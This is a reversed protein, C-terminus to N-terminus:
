QTGMLRLVGVVVGEITVDESRCFIATMTSNAPELRIRRRKPERYFRKLTAEDGIRAVVLDGDVCTGQKKVIVHDGDAIHEEIMSEGRVRLAFHGDRSLGELDLREDQQEIAEIPSGAAVTGALALGEPRILQLGRHGFGRTLYGTKVLNNVHFLATHPSKYDFEAQIERMSPSRGASRIERRIFDLVRQQTKTLAQQEM